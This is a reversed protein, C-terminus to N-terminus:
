NVYFLNQISEHLYYKTFIIFISLKRPPMFSTEALFFDSHMVRHYPMRSRSAPRTCKIQNEINLSIIIPCM